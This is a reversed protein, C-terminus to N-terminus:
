FSGNWNLVGFVGNKISKGIEGMLHSIRSELVFADHTQADDKDKNLADTTDIIDVMEDIM